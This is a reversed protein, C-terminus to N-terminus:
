CSVTITDHSWVSVAAYGDTESLGGGVKKGYNAITVYVSFFISQLVFLYYRYFFYTKRLPAPPSITECACM